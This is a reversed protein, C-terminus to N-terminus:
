LLMVPKTLEEQVSQATVRERDLLSTLLLWINKYPGVTRNHSANWGSNFLSCRLLNLFQWEQFPCNGECTNNTRPLRNVTEFHKNWMLVAVRPPQTTEKGVGGM